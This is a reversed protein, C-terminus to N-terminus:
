RGAEWLTPGKGFLGNTLSSELDPGNNTQLNSEIEYRVTRVRQAEVANEFLQLYRAAEVGLNPDNTLSLFANRVPADLEGSRVLYRLALQRLELFEGKDEAIRILDPVLKHGIPGLSELVSIVHEKRVVNQLPSKLLVYGLPLRWGLWVQWQRTQLHLIDSLPNIAKEGLALLAIEADSKEKEWNSNYVWDDVTRGEYTPQVPKSRSLGVTILAFVSIFTVFYLPKKM